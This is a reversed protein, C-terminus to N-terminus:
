ASAAPINSPPVAFRILPRESLHITTVPGASYGLLNSEAILRIPANELLDRWWGHLERFLPFWLSSPDLKELSAKPIENPWQIAQRTRCWVVRAVREPDEIARKIETVAGCYALLHSSM